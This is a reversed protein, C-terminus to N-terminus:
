CYSDVSSRISTSSVVPDENRSYQKSTMLLHKKSFSFLLASARLANSNTEISSSVSSYLSMELYKSDNKSCNLSVFEYISSHRWSEM